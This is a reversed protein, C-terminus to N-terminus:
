LEKFFEKDKEIKWFYKYLDKFKLKDKNTTKTTLESLTNM